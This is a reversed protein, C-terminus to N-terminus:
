DDKKAAKAREDFDKKEQVMQEISVPLHKSIIAIKNLDLEKGHYLKDAFLNAISDKQADTMVSVISELESGSYDMMHNVIDGDVLHNYENTLGLHYVAAKDLIYFYGEEAFKRENNVYDVLDHYLVSKIEGFKSFNLIRGASRNSNNNLNLSGYFMSMIKVQKNADPEPYEVIDDVSDVASVSNERDTDKNDKKDMADLRESLKAIMEQLAANEAALKAMKEDQEKNNITANITETSKEVSKQARTTNAM